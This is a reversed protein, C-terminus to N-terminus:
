VEIKKKVAKKKMPEANLQQVQKLAQEYADDPTMAPKVASM